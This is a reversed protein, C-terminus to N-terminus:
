SNISDSHILYYRTCSLKCYQLVPTLQIHALFSACMVPSPLEQGTKAVLMKCCQELCNNYNHVGMHDATHLVCTCQKAM